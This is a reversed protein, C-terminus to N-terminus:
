FIFLYIIWNIGNFYTKAALGCPSAISNPNLTNNWPNIYKKPNFDFMENVTLAGKCRTYNSKDVVNRLQPFSRSRALDRQNLFFNTLSYYMNVPAPMTEKIEVAVKCINKANPVSFNNNNLWYWKSYDVTYEILKSSLVIIPVGLAVFISLLVLNCLVACKIDCNPTYSKLQQGLILDTCGTQTQEVKEEEYSEKDM